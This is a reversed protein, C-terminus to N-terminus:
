TRTRGTDLQGRRDLEDASGIPVNSGGGGKHPLAPTPPVARVLLGGNRGQRAVEGAFPSSFQRTLDRSTTPACAPSKTQRAAPAMASCVAAPPRAVTTAM